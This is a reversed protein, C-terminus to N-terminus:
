NYSPRNDGIPLEQYLKIIFNFIKKYPFESMLIVLESLDVSLAEAIIQYTQNKSQLAKM